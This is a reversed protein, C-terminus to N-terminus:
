RLHDSHKEVFHTLLMTAVVALTFLYLGTHIEVSAIIGLKITSVMVAIVFVDLMSWRGLLHLLHFSRKKNLKDAPPSHSLQFLVAMKLAPMLISFAGIILVLLYEGKDLLQLLGGVLSFTDKLLYFKRFTFLPCSIGLILLLSTLWWGAIATIKFRTNRNM